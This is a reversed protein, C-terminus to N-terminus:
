PKTKRAPATSVDCLDFEACSAATAECTTIALDAVDGCGAMCQDAYRCRLRVMNACADGCTYVRGPSGGTGVVSGGAGGPPNVVPPTPKPCGQLVVLAGFALAALFSRAGM